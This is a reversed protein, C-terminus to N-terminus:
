TPSDIQLQGEEPSPLRSGERCCASKICHVHDAAGSRSERDPAATAFPAERRQAAYRAPAARLPVPVRRPRMTSHGVDVDSGNGTPRSHGLSGHRPGDHTRTPRQWAPASRLLLQIGAAGGEATQSSFFPWVSASSGTVTCGWWRSTAVCWPPQQSLAAGATAAEQRCGCGTTRARGARRHPLRLLVSAVAIRLLIKPTCRFSKV